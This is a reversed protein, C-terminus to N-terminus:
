KAALTSLQKISTNKGTEVAGSEGAETSPQIIPLVIVFTTGKGPTSHILIKGKHENIIGYSVSLGLGTGKGSKKTTFFPEFLKDQIEKDIGPGSDKLWIEVWKDNCNRIRLSITGPEGDMAQQSNIMLNILVQQIQNANGSILPLAPDFQKIVKIRNISLQHDVIALADGAVDILDTEKFEVQEQRAFKMLNEIIAKCRKAEKEIVSINKHLSSGKDIKRLSLQAYGLIGTLPNKVEHAIGASLQGFASLKESQVLKKNAEILAKERSKLESTMHNFSTALSGIEDRSTANIQVDFDGKSVLQAAESLRQIPRTLRYAWLLGLMSSVLLLGFAVWLLDNILAKTSLFAANKAIQVGVLLSGFKVESFGGVYGIEKYIYEKTIGASQQNNLSEIDPIWDIPLHDIVKKVDSHALITGQGDLLFTEFVKSRGAMSLLRDLRITGTVVGTIEGAPGKYPIALTLTPLEKSLTSNEIYIEGARIKELPLPFKERYADFMKRDLGIPILQNVDYVAIIGSKPDYLTVAVFEDFDNFLGKLLETKQQQQLSENYMLRAFVQLREHYGELLSDAEKASHVAILSTLDHIYSRKDSHFLNAMTFTITSVVATVVVLLILLIKYRIPFRLQLKM